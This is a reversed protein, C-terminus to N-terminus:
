ATAPLWPRREALMVLAHLIGVGHEVATALYSRIATFGEAGTM